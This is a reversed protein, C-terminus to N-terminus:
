KLQFEAQLMENTVRPAKFRIRYKGASGLVQHENDWHGWQWKKTQGSALEPEKIFGKKSTFFEQWREQTRKEIIYYCEALDAEKGTWNGLTFVAPEGPGFEAQTASLTLGGGAPHGDPMDPNVSLIIKFEVKIPEDSAQPAFFKIRYNGSVAKNQRENDWRDWEWNKKAQSSLTQITLFNKDSSYFEKWSNRYENEIKFYSGKLNVPDHAFNQLSFTIKDSDGYTEKSTKLDLGGYAPHGDPTDSAILMAHAAFASNIERDFRGNSVMILSDYFNGTGPTCFTYPRAYAAMINLAAFILPDAEKQGIAKRIDWCASSIFVSGSHGEYNYATPGPYKEQNDLN